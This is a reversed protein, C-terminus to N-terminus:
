HIFQNGPPKGQLFVVPLLDRVIGGPLHFGQESGECAERFCGPEVLKVKGQTILQPSVRRRSASFCNRTHIFRHDLGSFLQGTNATLQVGGGHPQAAVPMLASFRQLLFGTLPQHRQFGQLALDLGLGNLEGALRRIVEGAAAHQRAADRLPRLREPLIVKCAERAIFAGARVGEEVLYERLQEARVTLM